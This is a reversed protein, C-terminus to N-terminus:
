GNPTMVTIVATPDAGANLLFQETENRAIYASGTNYQMTFTYHPISQAFLKSTIPYELDQAPRDLHGAGLDLMHNRMSPFAANRYWSLASGASAENSPDFHAM